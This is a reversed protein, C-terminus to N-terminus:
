YILEREYLIACPRYGPRTRTIAEPRRRSIFRIVKCGFHRAVDETVFEFLPLLNIGPRIYMYLVHCEDQYIDLVLFGDDVVLTPCRAMTDRIQAATYRTKSRRIFDAIMQEVKADDVRDM